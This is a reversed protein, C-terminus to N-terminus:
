GPFDPTFWWPLSRGTWCDRDIILCNPPNTLREAGTNTREM